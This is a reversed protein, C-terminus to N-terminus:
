EVNCHAFDSNLLTPFMCLLFGHTSRAYMHMTMKQGVNYLKLYPMGEQEEIGGITQYREQYAAVRSLFDTQTNPPTM